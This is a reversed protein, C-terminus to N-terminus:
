AMVLGDLSRARTPAKALLRRRSCAPFPSPYRQSASRTRSTQGRGLVRRMRPPMALQSGQHPRSYAAAATSKAHACWPQSAGCFSNVGSITPCCFPGFVTSIFCGASNRVRCGRATAPPRQLDRQRPVAPPPRKLGGGSCCQGAPASEPAAAAVTPCAQGTWASGRSQWGRGSPGQTFSRYIRQVQQGVVSTSFKKAQERFSMSGPARSSQLRECSPLRLRAQAQVGAGSLYPTECLRKM